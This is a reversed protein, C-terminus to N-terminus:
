DVKTQKENKVDLRNVSRIYVVVHPDNLPSNLDVSKLLPYKRYLADSVEKVMNEVLMDGERHKHSPSEGLDRRLLDLFHPHVGNVKNRLKRIESKLQKLQKIRLMSGYKETFAIVGERELSLLRTAKDVIDQEQPSFRTSVKKLNTHKSFFKEQTTPIFLVASGGGGTLADHMKAKKYWYSSVDSVSHCAVVTNAYDVEELHSEHNGVFVKGDETVKCLYNFRVGDETYRCYTYRDVSVRKEVRKRYSSYLRYAIGMKDLFETITAVDCSGRDKRGYDKSTVLVTTGINEDRVNLNRGRTLNNTDLVVVNIGGQNRVGGEALLTNWTYSQFHSAYKPTGGPTCGDPLIAWRSVKHSQVINYFLPDQTKFSATGWGNIVEYLGVFLARKRLEIVDPDDSFVEKKTELSTHRSTLTFGTGKGTYLNRLEEVGSSLEDLFDSCQRELWAVTKDNFQLNERNPTVDVEGTDAKLFFTISWPYGNKNYNYVCSKLSSLATGANEEIPYPIGDVLISVGGTKIYSAVGSAVLVHNGEYITDYDRGQNCSKDLHIYEPRAKWFFTSAYSSEAFKYVDEKKIPISIKTGCAGPCPERSVLVMRGRSGDQVTAIYVFKTDGFHTEITFTKAYAFPSKAGLGFGGTQGNTDRKTSAGYNMFVDQMRDPSIGVGEDIFHICVSGPILPNDQIAIKIPVHGKGAERNADRANSAVERCISRIPNRYMKDRLIMIIHTMDQEKIGFSLEDFKESSELQVPTDNTDLIM